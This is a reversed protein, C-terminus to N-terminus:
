IRLASNSSPFLGAGRCPLLITAVASKRDHGACPPPIDHSPRTCEGSDPARPQDTVGPIPSPRTEVFIRAHARLFLRLAASQGDVAPSDGGIGCGAKVGVAGKGEPYSVRVPFAATRAVHKQRRRCAVGALAQGGVAPPQLPTACVKHREFDATRLM